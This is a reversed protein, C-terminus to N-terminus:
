EISFVCKLYCLVVADRRSVLTIHNPKVSKYKEMCLFMTLAESYNGNQSFGSIVTTWSTVNKRPVSDFLEMAAKMDGRKQYGTIM